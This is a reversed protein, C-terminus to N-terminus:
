DHKSCATVRILHCSTFWAREFRLEIDVHVLVAGRRRLADVRWQHIGIGIPFVCEVGVRTACGVSAPQHQILVNSRKGCVCAANGHTRLYHESAQELCQAHLDKAPHTCSTINTREREAKGHTTAPPGSLLRRDCSLLKGREVLNEVRKTPNM